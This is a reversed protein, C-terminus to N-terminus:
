DRNFEHYKNNNIDVISKHFLHKFHLFLPLSLFILFSVILVISFTITIIIFSNFVFIMIFIIQLLICIFSIYYRCLLSYTMEEIDKLNMLKYPHKNRISYTYLTRFTSIIVDQMKYTEKKNFRLLLKNIEKKSKDKAYNIFLSYVKIYTIYYILITLIM